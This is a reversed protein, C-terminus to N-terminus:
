VPQIIRVAPSAAIYHPLTLLLIAPLLVSISVKM